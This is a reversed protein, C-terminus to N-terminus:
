NKGGPGKGGPRKGNQKGGKNPKGGNPRGGNPRGGEPRDGKPKDGNPRNGKPGDGKPKENDDGTPRTPRPPRDGKIAKMEEKFKDCSDVDFDSEKSCCGSKACNFFSESNIELEKGELDLDGDFASDEECGEKGYIANFARCMKKIENKMNPKKDDDGTPKTPKTPKQPKENKLAEMEEKFIGCSSEDFEPEKSCCGSKACNFFNETNLGFDDVIMANFVSDEECGAKEYIKYFANCMRKIDNNKMPKKGPKKNPKKGPMKNPKGQKDPRGKKASVVAVALISLTVLTVLKMKTWHISHYKIEFLTGM